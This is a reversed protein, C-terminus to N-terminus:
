GNYVSVFANLFGKGRTRVIFQDSELEFGEASSGEFRFDFKQVLAAVALYIEAWALSFGV